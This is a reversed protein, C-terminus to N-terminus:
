NAFRLFRERDNLLADRDEPLALENVKDRFLRFARTDLQVQTEGFQLHIASCKVCRFVDIGDNDDKLKKM